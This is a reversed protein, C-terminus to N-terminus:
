AALAIQHLMSEEPLGEGWFAHQAARGGHGFATSVPFRMRDWSGIDRIFARGDTEEWVVLRSKAPGIFHGEHTTLECALTAQSGEPIPAQGLGVTLEGLMAKLRRPDATTEVRTVTVYGRTLIPLRPISPAVVEIEFTQGLLGGSRVPTFQGLSSGFDPWREPQGLLAAVGAASPVEVPDYTGWVQEAVPSAPPSIPALAGKRLRSEPRFDARSSVDPFAIGYARRRDDAWADPFWPGILRIAGTLLEERSLRGFGSGDRRVRLRGFARHFGLIDRLGLRRGLIQWRTAVIGMALRLDAVHREDNQRAYYAANMFDTVWPASGPSAVSTGAMRAFRVARRTAGSPTAAEPLERITM